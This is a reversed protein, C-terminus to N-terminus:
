IKVFGSPLPSVWRAQNASASYLCEANLRRSLGDEVRLRVRFDAGGAPEVGDVGVLRTGELRAFDSCARAAQSSPDGAGTACGLISVAGLSALWVVRKMM